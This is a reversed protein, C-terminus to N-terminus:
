SVAEGAGSAASQPPEGARRRLTWWEALGCFAAGLPFVFGALVLAELIVDDWGEVDMPMWGGNRIEAALRVSCGVVYLGVLAWAIGGALLLLWTRRQWERVREETNSQGNM